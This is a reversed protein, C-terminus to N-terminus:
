DHISFYNFFKLEVRLSRIAQYLDTGAKFFIECEKKKDDIELRFFIPWVDTVFRDLIEIWKECNKALVLFEPKPKIDSDFSGGRFFGLLEPKIRKKWVDTADRHRGEESEIKLLEQSMDELQESINEMDYFPRQAPGFISLFDNKLYRHNLKTRKECFNELKKKIENAHEVLDHAMRFELFALSLLIEIADEQQVLGSWGDDFLPGLNEIIPTTDLTFAAQYRAVNQNLGSRVLEWITRIAGGTIRGSYIQQDGSCLNLCLNGAASLSEKLGLITKLLDTNTGPGLFTALDQMKADVTGNFFSSEGSLGKPCESYVDYLVSDFWFTCEGVNSFPKEPAPLSANDCIKKDQLTLPRFLRSPQLQNQLFEQKIDEISRLGDIAALAEFEAEVEKMKFAGMWLYLAALYGQVLIDIRILNDLLSTSEEPEKILVDVPFFPLVKQSYQQKNIMEQWAAFAKSWNLNKYKEVPLPRPIGKEEYGQPSTKPPFKKVVEGSSSTWYLHRSGACDESIQNWDYDGSYDGYHVFVVQFDQRDPNTTDFTQGFCRIEFLAWPAAQVNLFEQLTSELEEIVKLKTDFIGLRIKDPPMM